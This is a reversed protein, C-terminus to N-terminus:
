RSLHGDVFAGSVGFTRNFEGTDGDFISVRRLLM